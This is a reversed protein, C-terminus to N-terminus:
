HLDHDTGAQQSFVALVVAAAVPAFSQQSLEGSM